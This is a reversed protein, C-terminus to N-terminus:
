KSSLNFEQFFIHIYHDKLNLINKLKKKNELVFPKFKEYDEAKLENLKQIMEDTNKVIIMGRTDFYDGVNPCGIYVPVVEMFICDLLKETLYNIQQTNEIAVNYQSKFLHKKSDTPMVRIQLEKPYKDIDRSSLYFVKKMQIENERDWIEKRTAYIRGPQKSYSNLGKAGLSLLFSVSFEKEKSFDDKSTFLELFGPIIREQPLGVPIGTFVLDFAACYRKMKQKYEVETQGMASFQLSEDTYKAFNLFQPQILAQDLWKRPRYLYHMKYSVNKYVESVVPPNEGLKEQKKQIAEYKFREKWYPSLYLSKLAGSEIYVRLGKEKLIKFPVPLTDLSEFEQSSLHLEPTFIGERLLADLLFWTRIIQSKKAYVIAKKTNKINKPQHKIFELFPNEKTKYIKEKMLTVNFWENPDCAENWPGKWGKLMFHDIAPISFSNKRYCACNKKYYEADFFPEVLERNKAYVSFQKYALYRTKLSYDSFFYVGVISPILLCLFIKRKCSM